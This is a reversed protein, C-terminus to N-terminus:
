RFDQSTKTFAEMMRQEKKQFKEVEANLEKIKQGEGEEVKAGVMLTLDKTQGDELLQIRAKLATNESELESMERAKKEVASAFPNNSFHIVKTEAPDFDGKIARRELETLLRQNREELAKVDTKLKEIEQSGSSGRPAADKKEDELM